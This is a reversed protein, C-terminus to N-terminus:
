LYGEFDMRLAIMKETDGLCEIVCSLLSDRQCINDYVDVFVFVRPCREYWVLCLNRVAIFKIEETVVM